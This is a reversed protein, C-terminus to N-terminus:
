KVAIEDIYIGLVSRRGKLVVRDSPVPQRGVVTHEMCITAAFEPANVSVTQDCIGLKHRVPGLSSVTAKIVIAENNFAWGAVASLSAPILLILTTLYAAIVSLFGLQLFFYFRNAPSPELLKLRNTRFHLAFQNARANCAYFVIPFLIVGGIWFGSTTYFDQRAFIFNDALDLGFFFCTVSLLLLALILKQQSTLAVDATPEFTYETRHPRALKKEALEGAVMVQEELQRIKEAQQKKLLERGTENKQM